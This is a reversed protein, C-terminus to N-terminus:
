LSLGGSTSPSQIRENLERWWPHDKGSGVQCPLQDPWQTNSKTCNELNSLIQLNTEVHLGCLFDSKLPYIHDVAQKVGTQQEIQKADAYIKQILKKDAWSPHANQKQARRKAQRASHKELNNIRWQTYLKRYKEPNSRRRERAYKRKTLKYKEQRKVNYENYKERWLRNQIKRCERCGNGKALRISDHGHVCPGAYFYLTGQELAEKRTRPLNQFDEPLM